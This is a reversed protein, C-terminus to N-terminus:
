FGRKKNEGSLKERPNKTSKIKNEAIKYRYNM